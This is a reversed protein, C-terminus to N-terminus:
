SPIVSLVAQALIELGKPGSREPHFQFGIINRYRVSAAFTKGGYRSVCNVYEPSINIAAYSHVFYQYIHQAESLSSPVVPILKNWGVHPLLVRQGFSDNSPLCSVNGPIFNLGPTVSYEDSQSFLMQMGLCIGLLAKGQSVWENLFPTLCLRDLAAMGAPFSGVGPLALLDCSDLNHSESSIAVTAGLSRFANLLSHTNGMGYDIIGIKKGSLPTSSSFPSNCLPSLLNTQESIFDNAKYRAFDLLKSHLAAGVSVGSVCPNTLMSTIQDDTSIGGGFILPVTVLDKVADLLETDPSTCTGDRDVSTLLIEGAGAEQAKQIWTLVDLGSKERGAETMAEWYGRSSQRAQVSVVVCQKGFAQALETILEPRQIAATNIAIKDAGSALLAKADAVSRVGGGATIPIFVRECNKRLLDFLSNRGYLSAVADVYLLEDAGSQYYKIAAESPDGVVRLGEFRVGKILRSGKIDLRAILRKTLGM